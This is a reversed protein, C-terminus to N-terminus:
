WVEGQTSSFRHGGHSRANAARWKARESDSDGASGWDISGADIGMEEVASLDCELRRALAGDPCLAYLDPDACVRSERVEAGVSFVSLYEEGRETRVVGHDVAKLEVPFRGVDFQGWSSLSVPQRMLANLVLM